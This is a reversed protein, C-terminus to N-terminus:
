IIDIGAVVLFTADPTGREPRLIERLIKKSTCSLDCLTRIERSAITWKQKLSLCTNWRSVRINSTAPRRELYSLSEDVISLVKEYHRKQSDKPKSTKLKTECFAKMKGLVLLTRRRTVENVQIKYPKRKRQFRADSFLEVNNSQRAEM